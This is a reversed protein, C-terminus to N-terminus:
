FMRGQGRELDLLIRKRGLGGGYGGLEGNANIVRHCPIVIAIPNTGNASGVARTANADGLRKAMDLYSWTEGYPILLLTSWVRQQFATGPYHLPLEFERREGAFYQALQVRLENLWRNSAPATSQPFRRRIARLQEELTAPETFELLVVAEDSAGAILLGVPTEIGELRVANASVSASSDSGFVSVCAKHFASESGSPQVADPVVPTASM